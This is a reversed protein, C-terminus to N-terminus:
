TMSRYGRGADRIMSSGMFVLYAVGAWRVTEFVVSGAKM